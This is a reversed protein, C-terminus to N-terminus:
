KEFGKEKEYRLQKEYGWLISRQGCKGWFFCDSSLTDDQPYVFDECKGLYTLDKPRNRKSQECIYERYRNGYRERWFCINKAKKIDQVGVPKDKMLFFYTDAVEDKIGHVYWDKTYIKDVYFIVHWGTYQEYGEIEETITFTYVDGEEWGLVYPKHISIKKREPMPSSIKEKLKDLNKTREKRIKEHEWRESVKDEEILELAKLKIEETLRGKKWMTDALALYFDYKCDSDRADEAYEELIEKLAEDDTKGAKLKGIYDDRVDMSLDNQYIGTEWTGMKIGKCITPIGM